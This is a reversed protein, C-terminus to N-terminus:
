PVVLPASAASAYGPAAAVVARLTTGHVAAYSFAGRSGPGLLAREVTTWATGDQRQLTVPRGRFPRGAAVSAVLRTGTAALQVVPQVRVTLPASTVAGLRARYTTQIRPRVTTQWRSVRNTHVTAVPVYRRTGYTRAELTVPSGLAQALFLGDFAVPTRYPALRAAAKITLQGPGCQRVTNGTGVPDVADAGVTLTLQPFRALCLSSNTVGSRISTQVSVTHAAWGGFACGDCVVDTPPTQARGAMKIFMNSNILRSTSRGCDVNLGKFTIRLGGLVQIGDQHLVPAKALCHVFGGGITLDHVGDAVKVGDGAWQTVAIRGIRGTCGPQLHIADENKRDGYTAKTITVTVSDLDVPGKCVWTRDVQKVTKAPPPAALVLAALAPLLPGLM